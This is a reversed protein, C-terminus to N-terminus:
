SCGGRRPGGAGAGSATHTFYSYHRLALAPTVSPTAARPYALVQVTLATPWIHGTRRLTRVECVAISRRGVCTGAVRPQAIEWGHCLLWGVEEKAGSVLLGRVAGRARPARSAGAAGVQQLEGLSDAAAIAHFMSPSVYAERVHGQQIGSDMASSSSGHSSSGGGGATPGSNPQGWFFSHEDQQLVAMRRSSPQYSSGSTPGSSNSASAPPLRQTSGSSRALRHRPAPPQPSQHLVTASPAATGARTHACRRGWQRCPVASHM